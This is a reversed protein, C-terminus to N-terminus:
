LQTLASQCGLVSRTMRKFQHGESMNDLSTQHVVVDRGMGIKHDEGGVGSRPVSFKASM